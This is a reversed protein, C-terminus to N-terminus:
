RSSALHVLALYNLGPLLLLVAFMSSKGCAHCIRISWVMALGVSALALLAALVATHQPVRFATYALLVSLSTLAVIWAWSMRAARMLPFAQFYPLWVTFGPNTGSKLCILRFVYGTYICTGVILAFVGTLLLLLGWRFSGSPILSPLTEIRASANATVTPPPTSIEYGLRRLTPNDLQQVKFGTIGGDHRIIIDTPSQQFVRVNTFAEGAITLSELTRLTDEQKVPVQATVASVTFWILGAMIVQCLVRSKVAGNEPKM